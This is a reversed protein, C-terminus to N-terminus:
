SQESRRIIELKGRENSRFTLLLENLAQSATRVQGPTTTLTFELIGAKCPVWLVKTLREGVSPLEHLFQLGFGERGAVSFNFNEINSPRSFAALAKEKCAETQRSAPESPDAQLIRFKIFYRADESTLMLGGPNSDETQLDLPKVFVFQNTGLQVFVRTVTENGVTEGAQARATFLLPEGQASQPRVSQSSAAIGLFSLLAVLFVM